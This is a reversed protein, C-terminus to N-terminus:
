AHYIKPKGAKRGHVPCYDNECWQEEHKMPMPDSRGVAQRTNYLNAYKRRLLLYEKGVIFSDKEEQNAREFREMDELYHETIRCVGLIGFPTFRAPANGTPGFIKSVIFFREVLVRMTVDLRTFHQTTVWIDLDEKGHQQLKIETDESLMSWKRPNFYRTGEDAIIVGERMHNWDRIHRWYFIQKVPNDLDEPKYLDGTIEAQTLIREHEESYPLVGKVTELNELKVNSYVRRGEKLWGAILRVLWATKGHRPKGTVCYIAM